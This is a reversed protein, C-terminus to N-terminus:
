SGQSDLEDIRQQRRKDLSKNLLPYSVGETVLLIPVLIEYGEPRTFILLGCLTVVALLGILMMRKIGMYEKEIKDLEAQRDAASM